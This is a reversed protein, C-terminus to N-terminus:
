AAPDRPKLDDPRVDEFHVVCGQDFFVVRVTYEDLKLLLIDTLTAPASGTIRAMFKKAEIGALHEMPADKLDSEPAVKAAKAMDVTFCSPNAPAQVVPKEEMTPGCGVLMVALLGVAIFGMLGRFFNYVVPDPDGPHYGKYMTM